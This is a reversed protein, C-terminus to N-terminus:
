CMWPTWFTISKFKGDITEAYENFESFITELITQQQQNLCLTNEDMTVTPNNQCEDDFFNLFNVNEVFYEGLISNLHEEVESWALFSKTIPIPKTQKM